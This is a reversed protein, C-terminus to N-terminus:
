DYFCSMPIEIPEVPTADCAEAINADIDTLLQWDAEIDPDPATDLWLDVTWEMMRATGRARACDGQEFLELMTRLAFYMNLMMFPKGYEPDSFWPWMDDPNQGPALANTVTQEVTVTEGTAADVYTARLDFAPDGGTMGDTPTADLGIFLGGGGGRRGEAVDESGVRGGLMLVPSELVAAGHEDLAARRAGTLTDAEYGERPAVELRLDYGLPTLRTEGERRMMRAFDAGDEAHAHTGAGVDGLAAVLSAGVGTSVGVISLGLGGRALEEGVALIREPAVIGTTAVGSTVLVVRPAGSFGDIAREAQDAAARLGGVLDVTGDAPVSDLAQRVVFPDAVLDGARMADVVTTTERGIALVSVRDDDALGQALARVGPAEAGDLASEVAASREIAVVAHVPQRTDPTTPSNLGVYGMTWNGGDFRPAVGLLPHFCVVDGCDAGPLDVAHEAFFGVPDLTTSSPVGGEAVISRLLAVDQAGGQTVGVSGGPVMGGAALEDAAGGSADGCGAVLGVVALAALPFRWGPRPPMDQKTTPSM